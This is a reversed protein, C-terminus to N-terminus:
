VASEDDAEYDFTNVRVVVQDREDDDDSGGEDRGAIAALAAEAAVEDLPLFFEVSWETWRSIGLQNQNQHQSQIQDQRQALLTISWLEITTTDFEGSRSPRKPWTRTYSAMNKPYTQRADKGEQELETSARVLSESRRSGLLIWDCTSKLQSQLEDVKSMDIEPAQAQPSETHTLGDVTIQQTQDDITIENITSSGTTWKCTRLVSEVINQVSAVLNVQEPTFSISSSALSSSSSSM